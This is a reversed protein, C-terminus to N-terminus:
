SGPMTHDDEDEVLENSLLVCNFIIRDKELIEKDSMTTGLTAKSHMIDFNGNLSTMYNTTAEGFARKERLWGDLVMAERSITARLESDVSQNLERSAMVYGVIAVIAMLLGMIGSLAMFKHKLSM